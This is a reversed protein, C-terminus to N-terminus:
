EAEKLKSNLNDKFWMSDKPLIKTPDKADGTGHVEKLCWKKRM